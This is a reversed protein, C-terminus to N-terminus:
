SPAFRDMLLLVTTEPIAEEGGGKKPSKVAASFSSSSSEKNPEKGEEVGEVCDRKVSKMFFPNRERVRARLKTLEGVCVDAVAAM